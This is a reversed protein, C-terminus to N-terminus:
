STRVVVESLTYDTFVLELAKAYTVADSYEPFVGINQLDVSSDSRLYVIYVAPRNQRKILIEM